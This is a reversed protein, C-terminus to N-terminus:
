LDQPDKNCLPIKLPQKDRLYISVLWYPAVQSSEELRQNPLIKFVLARAQMQLM